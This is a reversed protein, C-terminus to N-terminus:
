IYLAAGRKISSRSFGSCIGSVGFLVWLFCIHVAEIEPQGPILPRPIDAGFIFRLDYLIHYIVVLIMSGGRLLDLIEIRERASTLEKEVAAGM